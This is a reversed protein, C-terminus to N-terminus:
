LEWRRGFSFGGETPGWGFVYGFVQTFFLFQAEHQCGHSQVRFFTTQVFSIGGFSGWVKKPPKFLRDVLSPGVVKKAIQPSINKTKVVIFFVWCLFVGLRPHPTKAIPFPFFLTFTHSFFNNAGVCFFGPFFGFEVWSEVGGLFCFFFLNTPNTNDPVVSAPPDLGVFLFHSTNKPGGVLRGRVEFFVV